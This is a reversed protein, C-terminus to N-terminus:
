LYKAVSARVEINFHADQYVINEKNVKTIANVYNAVFM